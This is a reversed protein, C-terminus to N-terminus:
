ALSSPCGRLLICVAVTNAALDDTGPRSRVRSPHGGSGARSVYVVAPISPPHHRVLVHLRDAAQIVGPQCVVVLRDELGVIRLDPEVGVGLCGPHPDVVLVDPVRSNPAVHGGDVLGELAVARLDLVDDAQSVAADERERDFMTAAPDATRRRLGAPGGM